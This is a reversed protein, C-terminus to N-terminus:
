LQGLMEIIPRRSIETILQQLPKTQRPWLHDPVRTNGGSPWNV